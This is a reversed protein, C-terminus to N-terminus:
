EPMPMNIMIQSVASSSLSNHSFSAQTFYYQLLPVMQEVTVVEAGGSLELFYTRVQTLLRPHRECNSDPLVTVPPFCSRNNNLLTESSHYILSVDAAPGRPGTVSLLPPHSLTCHTSCGTWRSLPLPLHGSPHCRMM